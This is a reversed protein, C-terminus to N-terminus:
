KSCTHVEFFAHFDTITKINVAIYQREKLKKDKLNKQFNKTANQAVNGRSQKQSVVIRQVPENDKFDAISLKNKNVYSHDIHDFDDWCCAELVM